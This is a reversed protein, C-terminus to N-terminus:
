NNTLKKLPIIKNQLCEFGKQNKSTSNELKCEHNLM